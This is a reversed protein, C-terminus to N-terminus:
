SRPLHRRFDRRAHLIRVIVPGTEEIRYFIVHAAVNSCRYGERIEDCARGHRPEAAIVDMAAFLDRLYKDAQRASWRRATYRWIDALDSEAKERLRYGSM